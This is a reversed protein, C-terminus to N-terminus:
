LIGRAIRTKFGSYSSFIVSASLWIHFEAKLSKNDIKIMTEKTNCQIQLVCSIKNVEQMSRLLIFNMYLLHLENNCVPQADPENLPESGPENFLLCDYWHIRQRNIPWRLCKYYDYMYTLQTEMCLLPAFWIFQRLIM